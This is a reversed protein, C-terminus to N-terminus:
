ANIRFSLSKSKAFCSNMHCVMCDGQTHLPLLPQKLPKRQYHHGVNAQFYTTAFKQFKYESLDELEEQPVPPVIGESEMMDNHFDGNPRELDRFASPGNHETMNDTRPLFDFMADVLKSDDLVEDQRHVADTIVAKKEEIKRKDEIEAEKKKFEFEKIREFYKREAIEKAKKPNMQKRLLSEEQEKLRLAELRSRNEDRLKYYQRRAIAGRIFAQIKVAARHRSRFDRRVLYGRCGAQLSVIHGRLHKFRHTLVRSRILAQLRLYGLRM